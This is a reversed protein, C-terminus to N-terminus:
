EKLTISNQAVAYDKVYPETGSFILYKPKLAELLPQEIGKQAETLNIYTYPQTEYQLFESIRESRASGCLLIKNKGMTIKTMLSYDATDTYGENMGAVVSVSAAGVGFSMSGEVRVVFADLSDCLAIFENYGDTTDTYDPIYVTEVEYETILKSFGSISGDTYDQVVVTSVAPVDLKLKDIDGTGVVLVYEESEFIVTNDYFLM